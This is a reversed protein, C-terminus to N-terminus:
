HCVTQLALANFIEAGLCRIEQVGYLGGEPDASCLRKQKDGMMSWGKCIDKQDTEHLHSAEGLSGILQPARRCM